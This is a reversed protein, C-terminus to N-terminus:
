LRPHYHGRDPRPRCVSHRRALPAHPLRQPQAIADRLEKELTKAWDDPLVKKLTKMLDDSLGKELTKVL